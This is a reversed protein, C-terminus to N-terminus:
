NMNSDYIFSPLAHLMSIPNKRSGADVSIRWPDPPIKPNTQDTPTSKYM